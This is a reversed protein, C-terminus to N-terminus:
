SSARRPAPGHSTPSAGAGTADSCLEHVGARADFFSIWATSIRWSTPRGGTESRNPTSPGRLPEGLELQRELLALRDVGRM